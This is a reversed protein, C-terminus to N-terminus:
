QVTQARSPWTVKNTESRVQRFFESVSPRAVSM